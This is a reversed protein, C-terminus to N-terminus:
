FRTLILSDTSLAVTAVSVANELATKQVKVPDIIGAKILNKEKGDLADIGQGYKLTNEPMELGGNELITKMPAKLANLLINYGLDESKLKNSIYNLTSGGGAVFGDELAVRLAPIADDVRDKKEKREIDTVGGVIVDVVSSKLNSIRTKLRDRDVENTESALKEELFKIRQEVLDQNKAILVSKDRTSTFGVIEGVRFGTNVTGDYMEAGTIFSIDELINERNAGYEPSTCVCIQLEGRKNLTALTTLVNEEIENALIVLPKKDQISLSLSHHIDQVTNIKGNFIALLCEGFETIGKAYDTAFFPSKWGRDIRLGESYVVTINDSVGEEVKITADIGTKKYIEAIKEGLEKDGNVSTTAIQVMEKDGVTKKLKDLENLTDKLGARMGKILKVHSVNDHEFLQQILSQALITTTTTGDGCEDVTKLAAERLLDAGLKEYPDPLDTEKIVTVGDKTSHHTLGNFNQILSLRGEAGATSKVVNAVKNVGNLLAEKCDKGVKM